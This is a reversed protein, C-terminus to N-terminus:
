PKKWNGKKDITDRNPLEGKPLGLKQELIQVRANLAKIQVVHRTNYAASIGLAVVALATLLIWQVLKKGNVAKAVPATM